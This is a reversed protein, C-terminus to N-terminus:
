AKNEKAWSDKLTVTRNFGTKRKHQGQGRLFYALREFQVKEGVPLAALYPEAFAEVVKLSDKNILSTFDETDEGAPNDM